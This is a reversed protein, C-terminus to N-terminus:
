KQFFLGSSRKDGLRVSKSTSRVKTVTAQRQQGVFRTSKGGVGV